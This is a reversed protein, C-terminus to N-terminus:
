KGACPAVGGPFNIWARKRVSVDDAFIAASQSSARPRGMSATFTM